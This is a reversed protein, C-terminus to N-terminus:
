AEKAAKERALQAQREKEQRRAEDQAKLEAIEELSLGKEGARIFTQVLWIYKKLLETVM